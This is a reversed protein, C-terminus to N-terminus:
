KRTVYQPFRREKACKRSSIPCRLVLLTTNPRALTSTPFGRAKPTWRLRQRHFTDIRLISSPAPAAIYDARYGTPGIRLPYSIRPRPQTQPESKQPNGADPEGYARQGSGWAGEGAAREGVEVIVKAM